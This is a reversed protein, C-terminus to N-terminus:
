IVVKAARILGGYSEESHNLLPTSADASFAAHTTQTQVVRKSISERTNQPISRSASHSCPEAHWLASLFGEIKSAKQITKNDVATPCAAIWPCTCVISCLPDSTRPSAQQRTSRSHAVLSSILPPTRGLMKSVHSLRHQVAAQATGRFNLAGADM